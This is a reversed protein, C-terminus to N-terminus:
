VYFNKRDKQMQVLLDCPKFRKGYMETLRELTTVIKSVGETDAFTLLGGRFPAFGLGFIMAADIDNAQEVIKEELCRAAENIMLYILQKIMEDDTSGIKKGNIMSRIKTNIGKRNRKYRYFGIGSKKGRYGKEVMKKLFAVGTETGERIGALNKAVAFAVDLGIMDYMEFPGVPLGFQRILADIKEQKIGNNLMVISELLFPALIRNVLFGPSDKVPLPIKGLRLALNLAALFTQDSTHNGRIIEILPMTHPPNFFHMGIFRDPHKLTRALEDIRLSSTNSAIITDPTTQSELEHLLKQKASMDDTISEIIFPTENFGDYSLTYLINDRIKGTLKAAIRRVKNLSELRLGKLSTHISKAATLHAIGSGMIGAGVVAIRTFDRPLSEPLLGRANKKLTDRLFFIRILNKSVPSCILQKFYAAELLLGEEIPINIGKHIARLAHRPAPYKGLTRKEIKRKAMAYLITKAFPIQESWNVKRGHTDRLVTKGGVLQRAFSLSEDEMSDSNLIKDILGIKYARRADLRRGSLIIELSHRIGILRPLRQTGGWGPIIGLNVEPLSITTNEHDSAIRYSCALSLETGGGVCVGHIVAISPFPLKTFLSFVRQGRLSIQYGTEPDNLGALINIDAGACFHNSKGSKFLLVKLDSRNMLSLLKEEIETMAEPTFINVDKGPTDFTIQIINDDLIKQSFVDTKM